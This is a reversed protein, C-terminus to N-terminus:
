SLLFWICTLVVTLSVWLHRMMAKRNLPIDQTALEKKRSAIGGILLRLVLAATILQLLSFVGLKILLLLVTTLGLASRGWALQTRERQLGADYNPM